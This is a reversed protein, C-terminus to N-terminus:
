FERLLVGPKPEPGPPHASFALVLGRPFQSKHSYHLGVARGYGNPSGVALFLSWTYGGSPGIKGLGRLQRDWRRPFGCPANIPIRVARNPCCLSALQEVALYACCLRSVTFSPRRDWHLRWHSVPGIEPSVKLCEHPVLWTFDQQSVLVLHVFRTFLM